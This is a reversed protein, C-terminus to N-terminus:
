ASYWDTQMGHRHLTMRQNLAAPCHCAGAGGAIKMPLAIITAGEAPLRGLNMLNELGYVNAAATIRHVIFDRSPGNDISATDVGIGAINRENVLFEAAEAGFSPFHLSSADGPTDDGLYAAADGWRSEWGTRLVVIAHKPIRGHSNEWREIDKPLLVYDSDTAAAESVDIVVAPAVLREVPIEDITHRGEGFHIPADMHTGGHEPTSFSNSAYFYGGETEGHALTKLEFASPSTPWYITHEDYSHSLDVIDGGAITTGQPNEAGSVAGTCLALVMFLPKM